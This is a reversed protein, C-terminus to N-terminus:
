ELIKADRAKQYSFLAKFQTYYTGMLYLNQLNQPEFSM